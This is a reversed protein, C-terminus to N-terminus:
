KKINKLCFLEMYWEVTKKIGAEFSIQPEWGTAKKLKGANMAYRRDHGLRDKVYKIRAKDAFDNLGMNRFTQIITEIVEINSKESDGGLNYTEYLRGYEQVMYLGRVHDEVYMWDRINKGDGYVPIEEGQIINQIIKPILKESHQRPGYNNSSHTINAPFHYTSIYSKVLMDGAAKSAAYPNRPDYPSIETFAEEKEELSGYVEDTSVYLFKKDEAYRNEDVEWARRATELLVQTGLVNTRVFEESDEISRDVHSEAAFHVIRDINYQEFIWRITATDCIDAKIFKYYPSSSVEKLNDLDAAYTLKDVNIILIEKQLSLIYQIYNSGIFGAGGTVLYTKM